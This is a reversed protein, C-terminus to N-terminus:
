LLVKFKMKKYTEKEEKKNHKNKIKNFKKLPVRKKKWLNKNDNNNNMIKYNQYLYIKKKHNKKNNQGM